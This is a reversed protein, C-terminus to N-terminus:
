VTATRTRRLAIVGGGAILATAVGLAVKGEAVVPDPSNAPLCGVFPADQTTGTGTMSAVHVGGSLQGNDFQLLALPARFSGGWNVQAIRM